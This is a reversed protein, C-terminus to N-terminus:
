PHVCYVVASHALRSALRLLPAPFGDRGSPGGGGEWLDRTRRRDCDFGRACRMFHLKEFADFSLPGVCVM